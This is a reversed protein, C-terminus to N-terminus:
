KADWVKASETNGGQGLITGVGSFLKVQLDYFQHNVESEGPCFLKAFVRAFANLLSRNQM